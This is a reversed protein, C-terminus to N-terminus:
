FFSHGINLFFNLFYDDIFFKLHMGEESTDSSDRLISFNLTFILVKHVVVFFHYMRALFYGVTLQLIKIVLEKFHLAM